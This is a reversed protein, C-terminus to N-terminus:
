DELFRARLEPTPIMCVDRKGFWRYRRRAVAAYVADRIPKPVVVLVYALNWPFTLRRLVRLAATSESYIRGDDVLLVTEPVQAAAAPGSQDLLLEATRSQLPAFM